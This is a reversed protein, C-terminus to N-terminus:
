GQRKGLGMKKAFDSRKQAYSPAVMPYDQPLGWRARYEEPTMNFAARLYRKLMKLKRGDELCVIFDPHVSRRIPVAPKRSAAAEAEQANSQALEHLTEHVQGIITTLASSSVSNRSTFASVIETTMRMLDQRSAIGGNEGTM